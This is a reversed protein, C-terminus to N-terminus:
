TRDIRHDVDPALPLIIVAPGIEAAGAPAPVLHQRIEAFRFAVAAALVGKVTGATWQRYGVLLHRPGHGVGKKLGVFLHLESQAFIEVGSFVLARSEILDSLEEVRVPDSRPGRGGRGKKMREHLPARVQGDDGAGM